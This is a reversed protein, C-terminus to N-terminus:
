RTLEYVASIEIQVKVEGAEVPTPAASKQLAMVAMPRVAAPQLGGSERLNVLRKVHYGTAEAYLAAREALTKLAATRATNEAGVPNALGFSIQGVNTAGASVVADVAAGLRTLDNVTVTLQNSAQYGTLRPPQGQEYSYQPALSINSTQLNRGSIGAATLASIVHTMQTANGAIAKVATSETTDVGLNITAMDPIARAEGVASLSLTTTAFAAADKGGVDQAMTAPAAFVATTALWVGIAAARAVNEM